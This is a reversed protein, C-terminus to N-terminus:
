VPCLQKIWNDGWIVNVFMRNHGVSM